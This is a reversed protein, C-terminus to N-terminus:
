IVCQCAAKFNWGEDYENEILNLLNHLEPQSEAKTRAVDLVKTRLNQWQVRLQV